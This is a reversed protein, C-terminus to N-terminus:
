RQRERKAETLSLIRAAPQECLDLARGVAEAYKDLQGGYLELLRERDAVADTKYDVIEPQEPTGVILDITGDWRNGEADRCLMPIERALPQQRAIEALVGSSQAKRLIERVRALVPALEARVDVAALRAAAEAHTFLWSADLPNRDWLELLHHIATGAALAIRRDASEAVQREESGNAKVPAPPLHKSQQALTSPSLLGGRVSVVATQVAQLFAKSATVLGAAPKQAEASQKPKPSPAGRVLRHLVAGDHFSSVQPFSTGVRYGWRGLAEMWLSRGRPAGAMLILRERARTAAVYLLRKVEADEQLSEMCQHGVYAPTRVTGAKIALVPWPERVVEVGEAASKAGGARALDPLIVIPWELGKAAHVTLVRVADLTEDALPSDGQAMERADEEEIRALIEDGRLVGDRALETIHRVAKELNLVRQAGEYLAAVALRLPTEDVAARAWVDVPDDRHREAFDRLFGLARALEPFANPDPRARLSWVSGDRDGRMAFGQLERDPVGCIPSRLCSVLPVPDAPSFVLRLLSLLLEVEYRTFFGKGGQVVYSIERERLARLLAGSSSRSRLLIAVDGPKSEGRDMAERLWAAIAGAEVRRRAQSRMPVTGASWIEIRPTGAGEGEAVARRSAVLPDFEPDFESRQTGDAASFLGEFVHNLPKVLEPVSRFNSELTVIEGGERVLAEVARRYARIDAGRFRYISQKADGVIFLKGAVLRVAFADHESDKERDSKGAEASGSAEEGGSLEALFFVIEYQLPDTDQFEDVLIHDFRRGEARRADAHQELLDRALVILGDYSVLGRRVYAQRFHALFDGLASALDPVLETDAERLERLWKLVNNLLKELSEKGEMTAKTGIKCSKRLGSAVADIAKRDGALFGNLVAELRELTPLLNPNLGRAGAVANGIRKVDTLWGAALAKTYELEVERCNGAIVQPPVKFTALRRALNEVTDVSLKGLLGRWGNPIDGAGLAEELARPWLEDFLAAVKEGRDVQFGADIGAKGSHRRLIEAAFSHITSISAGDLAELATRARQLIEAAPTQATAHSTLRSFVRDAEESEEREHCAVDAAAARRLVRGLSDELRERLEAAAKQTFTMAAIREMPTGRELVHHLIREILLSTKGTGAGATVVFSKDLHSAARERQPHDAPRM